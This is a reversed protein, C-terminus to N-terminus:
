KMFVQLENSISKIMKPLIIQVYILKYKFKIFM